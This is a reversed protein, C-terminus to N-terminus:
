KNTETVAAESLPWTRVDLKWRENDDYALAFM